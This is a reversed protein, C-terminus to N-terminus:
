HSLTQLIKSRQLFMDNKHVDTITKLSVKKFEKLKSGIFLSDTKKDPIPIKKHKM